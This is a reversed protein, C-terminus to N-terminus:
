VRLIQMSRGERGRGARGRVINRVFSFIKMGVDRSGGGGRKKKMFISCQGIYGDKYNYMKNNKLLNTPIFSLSM